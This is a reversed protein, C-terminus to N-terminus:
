DTYPVTGNANTRYGWKKVYYEGSRFDDHAKKLKQQLQKDLEKQVPLKGVQNTLQFPDLQNDFLLWPGKLDRVYTYRTTRVGRLERGGRAHDWEGFPTICAFLASNDSPNKGGRMYENYDLGEVEKPVSTGCLRLLTPMFDESNFVAEVNRPKLEAPWRFLLPVRLSEDFPKQKANLGQSVLMDGHDASFIVITNKELGSEHLTQLLDGVCDDLATCHAYYGALAHRAKDADSPPVNGRLIIKEPDYMAQYKKPATTYPTHPPGWALMFAFPKKSQAHDRLHKQVDRTQAIADYGDWQKKEPTDGYYFSHNYSHTCELVKWYDFGQHRDKPIFGARHGDGNLHWKGVYGTDYGADRLVEAFTVCENRLPVDNMFVGHTLPRQGTMLSARTPCCVPVAAIANTFNVSQRALSDIHPTKVNPDGAYGFAQARWQDALIILVNPKTKEALAPVSFALLVLCVAILRKRMPRTFIKREM